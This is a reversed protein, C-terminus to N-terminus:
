QAPPIDARMFYIDHRNFEFAFLIQKGDASCIGDPYSLWGPFTVLDRRYKWSRMDDDSVWLSLPCRYAYGTRADPTNLLAIRGDRLPLLKPKNAPNPIDTQEAEGWSRGGDRSLSRYLRGRGDFRLLMAISGDSLPALTPESWVWRPTGDQLRLPLRVERESAVFTRMDSTSLVGMEVFDIGSEWIKRGQERLQADRQATVPYNQYPFLYKGRYELMGRVFCFGKKEPVDCYFRFTKGDDTSRIIYSHFGTFNGDHETMFIYIANGIVSVETQYQAKGNEPVVSVPKSWTLGEDESRFLYVRNGPDPEKTGGCQSVIILSGEPTRRLIAECSLTDTHVLRIADM